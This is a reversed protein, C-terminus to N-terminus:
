EQKPNYLRNQVTPTIATNDVWELGLAGPHVPVDVLGKSAVSDFVAETPSFLYTDRASDNWAAITLYYQYHSYHACIPDIRKKDQEIADRTTPLCETDTLQHTSRKTCRRGCGKECSLVCYKQTVPQTYVIAPPQPLHQNAERVVCLGSGLFGILGFLFFDMLIWASWSTRMFIKLIAIFWLGAASLGFLLGKAISALPDAQHLTDFGTPFLGLLALGFLGAHMSLFFLALLGLSSSRGIVFSSDSPKTIISSIATLYQGIQAFDSDPRESDKGTSVSWLRTPTSYLATTGHAISQKIFSLLQTNALMAELTDPHDTSIFYRTNFEQDNTAIETTLGLSKMMRHYWREKKLVFFLGNKQLLGIDRRMPTGSESKTIYSLFDPGTKKKRLHYGFLKRGRLFLVLCFIILQLFLTM